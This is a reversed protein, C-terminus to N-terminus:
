EDSVGAIAAYEEYSVTVTFDCRQELACEKDARREVEAHISAWLAADRRAADREQRLSELEDLLTPLANVAAAILAANDTTQEATWRPLGNPDCMRAIPWAFRRADEDPLISGGLLLHSHSSPVITRHSDRMAQWPGPTAKELLARLQSVSPTTPDTM